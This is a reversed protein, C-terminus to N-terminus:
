ERIAAAALWGRAAGLAVEWAAPWARLGDVLAMAEERFAAACDASGAGAPWGALRPPGREILARGNAEILRALDEHWARPLGTGTAALVQQAQEIFLSRRYALYEQLYHLVTAESGSALDELRAACVSLRRAPDTGHLDGAVSRAFEALCHNLDPTEPLGFLESRDRAGEQRHGIAYPTDIQVADGHAVACLASFLADEGRGFASTPPLLRSADVAFPTFAGGDSVQFCATGWWVPPDGRLRTWSAEDRCLASRAAPDLLFLWAVGSAGSQGRHGNVTSLVRRGPDLLPARSPALGALDAAAMGMAPLRACAAGLNQGCLVLHEALLDREVETGAALAGDVDDFSRVAWGLPAPRLGRAAQPHARLPFLFDDDLLLYRCGAALLSALNKGIGGGRRGAFRRPRRLLAAAAPGARQELDEAIASWVAQDVHRVEVGSAAAFDALLRRHAATNAAETSDDIVAVPGPLGFRRAHGILSALLAELQAPRDCARIFIGAVPALEVAPTSAFRTLWADATVLLGRAALGELVRRVAQEKGALGAIGAAVRRVHVELPQFERCLDMAKLVQLTMVHSKGLLPDFFVVEDSGLRAVRGDISAYLTAGAATGPAQPPQSM